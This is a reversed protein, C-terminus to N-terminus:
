CLPNKLKEMKPTIESSGSPSFYYFKFNGGTNVFHQCACSHFLKSLLFVPYKIVFESGNSINKKGNAKKIKTYVMNVNPTNYGSCECSANSQTTM